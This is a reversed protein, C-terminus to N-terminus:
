RMFSTEWMGGPRWEALMSECLQDITIPALLQGGIECEIHQPAEIENLYQQAPGGQYDPAKRAIRVWKSEDYGDKLKDLPVIVTRLLSPFDPIRYQEYERDQDTFPLGMRRWDHICHFVHLVFYVKHRQLPSHFGGLIAKLHRKDNKSEEDWSWNRDCWQLATKHMFRHRGNTDFPGVSLDYGALEQTESGLSPIEFFRNFTAQCKGACVRRLLYESFAAVWHAESTTRLECAQNARRLFDTDKDVRHDFSLVGVAKEVFPSRPPRRRPQAAGPATGSSSSQQKAM